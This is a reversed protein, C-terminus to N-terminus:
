PHEGGWGVDGLCGVYGVWGHSEYPAGSGRALGSLIGGIEEVSDARSRAGLVILVVLRLAWPFGTM